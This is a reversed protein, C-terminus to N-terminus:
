EGELSELDLLGEPPDVVIRRATLDVETVMEDVFPIQAEDKGPREVVLNDHAGLSELRVVTGVEAGAVTEVRCGVLDIWYYEDEDAAPLMARTAWVERGVLPQAAEISDIGALKVVAQSKHARASKVAVPEGDKDLLLSTLKAFGEPDGSYPNIRIEGRLGQVRAIKGLPLPADSM